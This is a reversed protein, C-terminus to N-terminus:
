DFFIGGFNSSLLNSKWVRQTKRWEAVNIKLQAHPNEKTTSTQTNTNNNRHNKKLLYNNL